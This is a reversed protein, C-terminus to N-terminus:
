WSKSPVQISSFNLRLPFLTYHLGGDEGVVRDRALIGDVQLLPSTTTPQLYDLSIIPDIGQVLGFALIFSGFICVDGLAVGSLERPGLRGVMWVDTLGFLVMGLQAAIVPWALRSIERIELRLLSM